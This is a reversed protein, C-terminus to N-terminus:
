WLGMKRLLATFRPDRRLGALEPLRPNLAHEQYAKELWEFAQDSSGLGAYVIAPAAATISEPGAALMRDLIRSAEAAQGSRAYAYALWPSIQAGMQKEAGALREIGEAYRGMLVYTRGLIWRGPAFNPDLEFVKHCWEEAEDYRGAELLAAALAAAGAASLPDLDLSRRIESIGDETRGVRGLFWAGYWRRAWVHNPDLQLAQRFRSESAQWQYMRSQYVGLTAHAEPLSPDLELAKGAAAKWKSHAAAPPLTGPLSLDILRQYSCAAGVYAPAFSPDKAMAQEFLALAKQTAEPQWNEWFYLGRLYLDYAEPHAPHGKAARTVLKVGLARALSRTIEEQIAFIEKREKDYVRSWLQRQDSVRVLNATIQLKDGATRVAGGAVTDVKFRLGIEPVDRRKEKMASASARPIVRLDNIGSLGRIIEASLGEGLYEIETSSDLNLFPMVVIARLPRPAFRVVWVAAAAAAGLVGAGGLRALTRRSFRKGALALVPAYAGRHLEIVIADRRGAGAYYRRLRSRLKHAEQRVTPDSRPDYDPNLGYVEVGIVREDLAGSKGQLTQEVIFRLF